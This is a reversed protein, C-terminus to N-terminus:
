VVAPADDHGRRAQEAHEVCLVTDATVQGGEASAGCIDCVPSPEPAPAAKPLKLTQGLVTVPRGLILPKRPAPPPAEVAPVATPPAQLPQVVKRPKQRPPKPTPASAVQERRNLHRRRDAEYEQYLRNLPTGHKVANACEPCLPVERAIQGNPRLVPYTLRPNGPPVVTTCVECRYM